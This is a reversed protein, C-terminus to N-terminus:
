RIELELNDSNHAINEQLKSQAKPEAVQINYRKKTRLDDRIKRKIEAVLTGETLSAATETSESNHESSLSPVGSSAKKNNSTLTCGFIVKQKTKVSVPLCIILDVPGM